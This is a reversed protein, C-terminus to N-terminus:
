AMCRVKALAIPISRWLASCKLWIGIAVFVAEDSGSMMRLM